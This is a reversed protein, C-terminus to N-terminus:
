RPPGRRSLDSLPLRAPPAGTVAAPAPLAPPAPLPPPLLPLLLRIGAALARLMREGRHLVAVTVVAALVHGAVMAPDVAVPGGVGVTPLLAPAHDHGAGSAPAAARSAPGVLAFVGHLLAQAVAVAAATGAVSPRRGVLAVAVPWALLAVTALLEPAPAGGGSLTHAAAAILTAVGAAAGGRIARLRRPDAPRTTM